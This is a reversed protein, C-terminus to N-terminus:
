LLSVLSYFLCVAGLAYTLLLAELRPPLASM